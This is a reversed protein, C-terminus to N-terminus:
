TPDQLILLDEEPETEVLTTDPKTRLNILYQKAAGEVTPIPLTADYIEQTIVNRRLMFNKVIRYYDSVSPKPAYTSDLFYGFNRPRPIVAAMFIAESLNIKDADKNFYFKAAESAGYVNPGWEIINLYTEFMKDKTSLRCNEILWVILMEEVKRAVNKNQNLFVNKVLQMSITSGGRAFRGKRINEIIAGKFAEENFGRHWFFSGDESTLVASKLDASIQDLTRFNPNEPGVIFSRVPEGKVYATYEFPENMRSLNAGGYSQIRFKTGKLNSSFILNEPNEMKLHFDLNYALNGSVKMGSINSFLGTPLSNFLNEAPIEGTNIKFDYEPKKAPKYRAYFNASLKNMKMTSTSDMEFFDRGILLNCSGILSDFKVEEQALKPSIIGMNYTGGEVAFQTSSSSFDEGRLRFRLSDFDAKINFKHKIFPIEIKGTESRTLRYSIESNWRSAQGSLNIINTKGFETVEIKSGFQGNESILNPLSISLTYDNHKYFISVNKLYTDATLIDLSFQLLKGYRSALNGKVTTDTTASVNQKFFTFYNGSTDTRILNLKVDTATIDKISPILFWMKFYSQHVGVESVSLLTDGNAPVITLHNLYVESLGRFKIQECKMELGYRAMARDAVKDFVVQLALNRFIFFLIQVILIFAVIGIAVRKAIRKVRSNM